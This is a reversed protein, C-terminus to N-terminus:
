APRHRSCGDFKERLPQGRCEEQKKHAIAWLLNEIKDPMPWKGDLWGRILNPRMGLRISLESIPVRNKKFVAKLPHM